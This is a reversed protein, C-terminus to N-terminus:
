FDRLWMILADDGNSYYSKRISETNFNAKKYLNIAPLNKDSVELYINKILNQKLISITKNLLKTAIGQRIKLPNTAIKIICSEDFLNFTFIYGVIENNIKAVLNIYKDDTIMENLMSKSYIDHTFIEKELQSIKEIDNITIKSIEM